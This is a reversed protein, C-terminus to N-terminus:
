LATRIPVEVTKERGVRGMICSEVRRPEHDDHGHQAMAPRLGTGVLLATGFAMGLILRNMKRDGNEIDGDTESPEGHAPSRCPRGPEIVPHM